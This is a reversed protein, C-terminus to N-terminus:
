STREFDPKQESKGVKRRRGRERLMLGVALEETHQGTGRIVSLVKAPIAHKGM